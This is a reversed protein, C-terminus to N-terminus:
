RASPYHNFATIITM